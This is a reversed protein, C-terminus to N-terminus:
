LSPAFSVGLRHTALTTQSRRVMLLLQDVPWALDDVFARPVQLLSLPTQFIYSSIAVIFRLYFVTLPFLLSIHVQEIGLAFVIRRDREEIEDIPIQELVGNLRMYTIETSIVPFGPIPAVAPAGRAPANGAGAAVKPVARAVGPTFSAMVRTHLFTTFDGAMHYRDGDEGEMLLDIM